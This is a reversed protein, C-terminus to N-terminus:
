RPNSDRRGCVNRNFRRKIASTEKRKNSFGINKIFKETNTRSVRVIFLPHKRKPGIKRINQTFKIKNLGLIDCVNTIASKSILGLCINGNTSVFGDTDFLGRSFGNLFDLSYHKLPYKLCFDRSKYTGLYLLTSLLQYIKVSSFSVILLNKKQFSCASKNFLKYIIKLLFKGYEKDDKAHLSIRIRHHGTKKNYCYNGDGAFAGMFEGLSFSLNTPIKIKSYEQNYYRTENQKEMLDKLILNLNVM